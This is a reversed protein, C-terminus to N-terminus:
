VMQNLGPSPVLICWDGRLGSKVADLIRGHTWCGYRTLAVKCHCRRIRACIRPFTSPGPERVGKNKKVSCPLHAAESDGARSKADYCRQPDVAVAYADSKMGM